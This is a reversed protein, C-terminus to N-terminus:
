SLQMQTNQKIAKVIDPRFPNLVTDFIGQVFPAVWYQSDQDPTAGADLCDIYDTSMMYHDNLYFLYSLHLIFVERLDNQLTSLVQLRDELYVQNDNMLLTQYYLYHTHDNCRKRLPEFPSGKFEGNTYILETITAVRESGIIYKSMKEFGPISETGKVWNNIKEVVFNDISFNDGLYLNTYINIIASDYYKRLLAYADNLRGRKLIDFISELTGDISSFVYTDMNLLGNVGQTIWSMNLDSLSSYFKAYVILDNFIEHEQYEKAKVYM